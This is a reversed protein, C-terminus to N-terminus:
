LDLTLSKDERFRLLLRPLAYKELESEGVLLLDEAPPASLEPWDFVHFMARIRQHSLQHRYLTSSRVYGLRDAPLWDPWEELRPLAAARLHPTPVEILPYEFLDQWIDKDRRQRILVEGNDNRLVLYHFHRDRVKPKNKKTPLEAVRGTQYALCGVALPCTLCDPSRPTCILAGFDMIAQNFRAPDADGLARDALEQFHRRGPSGETAHEDGAYRSLVRFVNGDLVAIREGYAFSAIAAATYPGVGPLRLLDAYTAPFSGGFDSVVMRAARLLNRARSYYGLGEWLKMVRDDKAAALRDVTPFAAVFREFYPMGQEVRTQQLIIESLWIRYPDPEEKWPMPRREPRYWSLLRKRFLTWDTDPM